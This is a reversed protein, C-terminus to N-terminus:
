KWPARLPHQHRILELLLRPAPPEGIIARRGCARLLIIRLLLGAETTGHHVRDSSRSDRPEAENGAPAADDAADDEAQEGCRDQGEADVASNIALIKESVGQIGLRQAPGGESQHDDSEAHTAMMM